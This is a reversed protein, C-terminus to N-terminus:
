DNAGHEKVKKSRSDRRDKVMEQGIKLKRISEWGQNVAFHTRLRWCHVEILNVWLKAPGEVDEGLIEQWGQDQQLRRSVRVLYAGPGM